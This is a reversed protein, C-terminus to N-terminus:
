ENIMTSVRKIFRGDSGKVIKKHLENLHKKIKDKHEQTQNKVSGKQAKSMNIRAGVSAKSGIRKLRVKENWEPTHIVKKGSESIKRKTEESLPGLKKGKNPNNLSMKLKTEQTRKGGTRSKSQKMRTELSAKRGKSWTNVGKLSKSLKEKTRPLAAHNKGGPHLNYGNPHMSNYFSIFYEEAENLDELNKYEAITEIFFNSEGFKQIENFLFSKSYPKNHQGWRTKIPKTTQGIYTLGNVKNVIRYIIM